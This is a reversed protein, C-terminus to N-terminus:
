VYSSHTLLALIGTATRQKSAVYKWLQQINEKKKVCCCHQMGIVYALWLKSWEATAHTNASRAKSRDSKGELLLKSTPFNRGTGDLATEQTHSLALSRQQLTILATEWLVKNFIVINRAYGGPLAEHELHEANQQWRATLCNCASSHTDKM